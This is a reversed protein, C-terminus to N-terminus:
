IPWGKNKKRISVESMMTLLLVEQLMGKLLLSNYIIYTGKVITGLDISDSAITKFDFAKEHALYGYLAGSIYGYSRAYSQLNYIRDLNAFLKSRNDEKSNTSLLTSTFTTLGKM